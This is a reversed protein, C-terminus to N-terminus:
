GVPRACCTPPRREGLRGRTHEDGDLLLALSGQEVELEEPEDLGGTMGRVRSAVPGVSWRTHAIPCRRPTFDKKPRLAEPTPRRPSNAPATTTASTPSDTPTPGSGPAPDLTHYTWATKTKLRHHRRCFPALNEDSTPGGKNHPIVHDKDCARAPRTCWPFVCTPHTLETRTALRDGVEYRDVTVTQTLDIVETVKVTTGPRGCWQAVQQALIARGAGGTKTELRALPNAPVFQARRLPRPRQQPRQHRRRRRPRRPHHARGPPDRAPGQPVRPQRAPAPSCPPPRPPTPSSGSPAPGAPRSRSARTPPNSSMPSTPSPPTSTPSTRGSRASPPRPSGPTTSRRRTCSWTPPTWRRSSPSSANRPTCGSCPRTSSGTWPSSGSRRPWRPRRAADLYDAVDAPRAYVARAIRRARWVPVECAVVRAWVLPLRHRLTLADRILGEGAQTSMGLAAAFAAPAGLRRGPDAPRPRPGPRPRPTAPTPPRTSASTTPTPGAATPPDLDPHADAWAAALQLLEAEAAMQDRHVEGARALLATPTPHLDPNM